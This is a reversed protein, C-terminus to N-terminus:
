PILYSESCGKTLEQGLKVLVDHKDQLTHATTAPSKNVLDVLPPHFVVAIRIVDHVDKGKRKYEM